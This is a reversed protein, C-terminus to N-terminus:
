SYKAALGSVAYMAGLVIHLINVGLTLALMSDGDAHQFAFFGAVGLGVYVLGFVLAFVKVVKGPISSFGFIYAAIALVVHLITHPWTFVVGAGGFALFDGKGLALAIVGMLAVATLLFSTLRWVFGPDLLPFTVNSPTAYEPM